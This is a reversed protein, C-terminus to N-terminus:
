SDGHRDIRARGTVLSGVQDRFVSADDLDFEITVRHRDARRRCRYPLDDAGRVEEASEFENDREIPLHPLAYPDLTEGQRLEPRRHADYGFFSPRMRPLPG